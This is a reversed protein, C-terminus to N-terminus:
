VNADVNLPAPCKFNAVNKCVYFVAAIKKGSERTIVSILMKTIHCKSM